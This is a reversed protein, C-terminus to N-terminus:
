LIEIFKKKESLLSKMCIIEYFYRLNFYFIENINKFRNLIKKTEFILLFNNRLDNMLIIYFKSIHYYFLEKEKEVFNNKSLERFNENMVNLTYFVNEDKQSLTENNIDDISLINEEITKSNNLFVVKKNSNNIKNNYSLYIFIKEFDVTDYFEFFIEFQEHLVNNFENQISINLLQKIRNNWIYFTSICAILFSCM